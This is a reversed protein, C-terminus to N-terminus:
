FCLGTSGECSCDQTVGPAADELACLRTQLSRHNPEATLSIDWHGDLGLDRYEMGLVVGTKCPEDVYQTNPSRSRTDIRATTNAWTHDACLQAYPQANSTSFLFDHHADREVSTGSNDYRDDMVRNSVRLRVLPDRDFDWRERQRATGGRYHRWLAPDVRAHDNSPLGPYGRLAFGNGPFRFLNSWNLLYNVPLCTSRGFREALTCEGGGAVKDRILELYQDREVDQTGVRMQYSIAYRPSAPMTIGPGTLPTTDLSLQVEGQTAQTIDTQGGRLAIRRVGRLDGREFKVIRGDRCRYVLPDSESPSNQDGVCEMPTFVTFRIIRRNNIGPVPASTANPTAQVIRSALHEVSASDAREIVFQVNVGESVSPPTLVGSVMHWGSKDFHYECNHGGSGATCTSPPFRSAPLSFLYTGTVANRINGDPYHCAGPRSYYELVEGTPLAVPGRGRDLYHDDVRATSHTCGSVLSFLHYPWHSWRGPTNDTAWAQLADTVFHIDQLTEPLTAEGQSADILRREALGIIAVGILAILVSMEILTLGSAGRRALATTERPM